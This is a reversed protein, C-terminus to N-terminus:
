QIRKCPQGPEELYCVSYSITKEIKKDLCQPVRITLYKSNLVYSQDPDKIGSVSLFRRINDEINKRALDGQNESYRRELEYIQVSSCGYASISIMLLCPFYYPKM